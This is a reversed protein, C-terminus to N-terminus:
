PVVPKANESALRAEESALASSVIRKALFVLADNYGKVGDRKSLADSTEEYTPQALADKSLAQAMFQRESVDRNRIIIEERTMKSLPKTLTPEWFASLGNKLVYQKLLIIANNLAYETKESASLADQLAKNDRRLSEITDPPTLLEAEEGDIIENLYNLKPGM